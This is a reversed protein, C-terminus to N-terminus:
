PNGYSLRGRGKARQHPHCAVYWGNGRAPFKRARYLRSRDVFNTLRRELGAVERPSKSAECFHVPSVGLEAGSSLGV